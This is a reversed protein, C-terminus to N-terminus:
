RSNKMAATILAVADQDAWPASGTLSALLRGQPVVLTVPLGLGLGEHRVIRFIEMSKDRYLALNGANVEELFKRITEDPSSDINVALVDFAAGGLKRKLAALEPMEDRCPVCWIAWLNVVLTKGQFTALKLM